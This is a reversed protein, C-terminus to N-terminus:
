LTSAFVDTRDPTIRGPSIDGPLFTLVLGTLPRSHWRLSFDQSSVLVVRPESEIIIEFRDDINNMCDEGIKSTM